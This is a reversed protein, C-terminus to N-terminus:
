KQEVVMFNAFGGQTPKGDTYADNYNWIKKGCYQEIDQKCPRCKKCSGVLLGVGVTDGVKFKTVEPGVQVVEGVVENRHVCIYQHIEQKMIPTNLNLDNRTQSTWNVLHNITVSPWHQILKRGWPIANRDGGDDDGSAESVGGEGTGGRKQWEM